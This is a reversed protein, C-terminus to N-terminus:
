CRGSPRMVEDGAERPHPWPNRVLINDEVATMLVARLLRYAKAAVTVSMLAGSGLLTSRWERIM